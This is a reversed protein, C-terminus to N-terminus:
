AGLLERRRTAARKLAAAPAPPSILAEAFHSQDETSLLLIEIEEITRNAAEGQIEATRKLLAHIDAPLQAELRAIPNEIMIRKRYPM